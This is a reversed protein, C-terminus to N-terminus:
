FTIEIYHLSLPIPIVLNKHIEMGLLVAAGLTNPSNVAKIFAAM